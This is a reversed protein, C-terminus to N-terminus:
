SASSSVRRRIVFITTVAIACLIGVASWLATVDGGRAQPLVPFLGVSANFSAHFLHAPVLSGGSALHLHMYIVSSAIIQTAFLLPPIANHFDGPLLFLPAHWIAWFLGLGLSAKIPGHRAILPPLALGRWGLEEGVVSFVMIYAFVAIPLWILMPEPWVPGNGTIARVALLALLIGAVPLAGAYLWVGIPIRWRVLRSLLERREQLHPWVLILAATSPGFTGAIKLPGRPKARDSGIAM